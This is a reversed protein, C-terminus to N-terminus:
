SKDKENQILESNDNINRLCKMRQVMHLCLKMYGEIQKDTPLEPSYESISLLTDCSCCSGYFNSFVYYCEESPSYTDLHLLFIQTGRCEGHDVVDIDKSFRNWQETKYNLCQAILAKVVLKYTSYEEQKHEKFWKRLHEKGREWREIIEKEM